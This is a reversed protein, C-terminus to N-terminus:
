GCAGPPTNRVATSDGRVRIEVQVPIGCRVALFVSGTSLCRRTRPPRYIVSNRDRM